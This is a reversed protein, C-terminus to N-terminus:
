SICCQPVAGMGHPMLEGALLHAVRHASEVFGSHQNDLHRVAVPQGPRGDLISEGLGALHVQNFHRPFRGCSSLDGRKQNGANASFGINGLLMKAHCFLHSEFRYAQQHHGVHARGFKECLLCHKHFAVAAITHVHHIRGAREQRRAGGLAHAREFLRERFRLNTKVSV